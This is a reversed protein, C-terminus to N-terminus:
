DNEECDKRFKEFATTIIQMVAELFEKKPQGDPANKVINLIGKTFQDYLILVTDPNVDYFASLYSDMLDIQMQKKEGKSKSNLEVGELVSRCIAEFSAKVEEFRGSISVGISDNKIASKIIIREKSETESM